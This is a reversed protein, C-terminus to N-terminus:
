ACHNIAVNEMEKYKWYSKRVNVIVIADTSRMFIRRMECYFMKLFVVNLPAFKLESTGKAATMNCFALLATSGGKSIHLFVGLKLKLNNKGGDSLSTVTFGLVLLTALTLHCNELQM